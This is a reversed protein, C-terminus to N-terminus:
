AVRRPRARVWAGAAVVGFAVHAALTIWDRAQAFWPFVLTFGHMNVV